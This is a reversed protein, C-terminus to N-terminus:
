IGMELFGQSDCQMKQMKQSVLAPMTLKDAPLTRTVALIFFFASSNEQIANPNLNAREGCIRAALFQTTRIATDIEPQAPKAYSVAIFAFSALSVFIRKKM